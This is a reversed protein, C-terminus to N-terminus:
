ILQTFTMNGDRGVIDHVFLPYITPLIDAVACQGLNCKVPEVSSCFTMLCGETGLQSVLPFAVRHAVQLLFYFLWKNDQKIGNAKGSLLQLCILPLISATISQWNLWSILIEQLANVHCKHFHKLFQPM